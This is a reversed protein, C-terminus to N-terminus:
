KSKNGLGYGYDKSDSNSKCEPPDPISMPGFPHSRALEVDVDGVEMHFAATGERVLGAMAANLDVPVVQAM